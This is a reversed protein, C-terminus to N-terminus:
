VGLVIDADIHLNQSIKRAIKLSPESKGGLFGSVYSQSVHLMEALKKQNIGMEYMRLKIVAPFSPKSIPYHVDEYKEVERGLLDLELMRPDDVPTNEDTERYLEEIRRIADEYQQKTEIKNM